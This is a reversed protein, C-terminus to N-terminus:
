KMKYLKAVLIAAPWCDNTKIAFHKYSNRGGPLSLITDSTKM